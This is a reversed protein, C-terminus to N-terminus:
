SSGTHREKAEEVTEDDWVVSIGLEDFLSEIMDLRERSVPRKQLIVGPCVDRGEALQSDIYGWIQSAQREVNGRVADLTMRDWDSAKIEVIAVMDDDVDVFVDIRGRRGNLKVTSAEIEVDGEAQETWELQVRKHFAKGRRLRQPEEGSREASSSHTSPVLKQEACPELLERRIRWQRGVKFAPIDGNRALRRLTSLPLDLYDAAEALTM